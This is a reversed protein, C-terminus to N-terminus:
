LFSRKAGYFVSFIMTCFSFRRQNIAQDKWYEKVYWLKSEICVIEERIVNRM